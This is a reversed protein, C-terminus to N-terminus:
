NPRLEKLIRGSMTRSNRLKRLAKAEIQAIRSRSLDLDIAVDKVSVPTGDWLGYRRRLVDSERPTLKMLASELVAKVRHNEVVEDPSPPLSLLGITQLEKPGIEIEVCPLPPRGYLQPDFLYEPPYALRDAIAMATRTWGARETYPWYRMNLLVGLVSQYVGLARSADAATQVAPFMDLIARWLRNNKIKAVIRYPKPSEGNWEPTM